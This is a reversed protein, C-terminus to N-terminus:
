EMFKCNGAVCMRLENSKNKSVSHKMWGPFCLLVGEEPTIASSFRDFFSFVLDGAREPVKVYYVWSLPRDNHHHTNTSELPRHILGWQSITILKRPAVLENVVSVLKFAESGPTPVLLSDENMISNPDNSSRIDQNQLIEQALVNNNIGIVNFKHVMLEMLIIDEVFETQIKM